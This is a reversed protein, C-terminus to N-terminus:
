KIIKIPDTLFPLDYVPEREEWISDLEDPTVQTEYVGREVELLNLPALLDRDTTFIVLIDNEERWIAFRHGKFSCFTGVHYAHSIDETPIKKVYIDKTYPAFGKEACSNTILEFSGDIKALRYEKGHYSAYSDNRM